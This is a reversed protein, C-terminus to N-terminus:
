VLIAIVAVSRTNLFQGHGTSLYWINAWGLFDLSCSKQFTGRQDTTPTKHKILWSYSPNWHLLCTWEAQLVHSTENQRFYIYHPFGWDRRTHPLSPHFLQLSLGREEVSM